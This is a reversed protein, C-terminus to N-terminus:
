YFVQLTYLQSWTAWLWLTKRTKKKERLTTYLIGKKVGYLLWSPNFLSDLQKYIM